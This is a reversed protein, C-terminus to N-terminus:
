PLFAGNQISIETSLVTQKQWAGIKAAAELIHLAKKLKESGEALLVVRGFVLKCRAAWREGRHYSVGQHNKDDSALFDAPLHGQRCGRYISGLVRLFLSERATREAAPELLEDGFRGALLPAADQRSRGV